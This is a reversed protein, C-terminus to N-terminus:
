LLTRCEMIQELIRNFHHNIYEPKFLFIVEKKKLTISLM